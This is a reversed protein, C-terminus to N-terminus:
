LIGFAMRGLELGVVGERVAAILELGRLAPPPQLLEADAIPHNRFPIFSSTTPNTLERPLRHAWIKEQFGGWHRTVHFTRSLQCQNGISLIKM